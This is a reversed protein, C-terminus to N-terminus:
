GYPFFFFYSTAACTLDFIVVWLTFLIISSLIILLKVSISRVLGLFWLLLSWEAKSISSPCPCSLSAVCSLCNSFSLWILWNVFKGFAWYFLSSNILLWTDGIPDIFGQFSRWIFSSSSLSKSSPHSPPPTKSVLSFRLCSPAFLWYFIFWGYKGADAASSGFILPLRFGPSSSELILELCKKFEEMM